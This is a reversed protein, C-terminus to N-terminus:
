PTELNAASDATFMARLSDPAAGRMTTIMSRVRTRGEPTKYLSEATRLERLAARSDGSSELAMGLILHADPSRRSRRVGDRALEVSLDSRGQDNFYRVAELRLDLDDPRARVWNRYVAGMENERGAKRLWSLQAQYAPVYSSDAETAHV